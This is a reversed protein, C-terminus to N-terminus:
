IWSANKRNPCYLLLLLLKVNSWYMDTVKLTFGADSLVSRFYKTSTRLKKVLESGDMLLDFVQVCLRLFTCPVALLIDPWCLPINAMEAGSVM